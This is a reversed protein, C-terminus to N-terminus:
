LGLRLDQLCTDIKGTLWDVPGTPLSTPGLIGDNDRDEHIANRKVPPSHFREQSWSEHWNKKGKLFCICKLNFYFHM